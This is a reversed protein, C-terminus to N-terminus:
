TFAAIKSNSYCVPLYLVSVLESPGPLSCPPSSNLSPSFPPTGDRRGGGQCCSGPVCSGAQLAGLYRACARGKPGAHHSGGQLHAWSPPTGLLLVKLAPILPTRAFWTLITM